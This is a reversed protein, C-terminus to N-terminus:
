VTWDTSAGKRLLTAKLCWGHGRFQQLTPKEFNNQQSWAELEGQIRTTFAEETEGEELDKEDYYMILISPYQFDCGMSTSSNCKDQM